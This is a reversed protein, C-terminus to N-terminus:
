IVDFMLRVSERVIEVACASALLGLLRRGRRENLDGSM